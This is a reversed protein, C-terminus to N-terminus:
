SDKRAKDNYFRLKKCNDWNFEEQKIKKPFILKYIWTNNEYAYTFKCPNQKDMTILYFVYYILSFMPLPLLNWTEDIHLKSCFTCNETDEFFKVILINEEFSINIRSVPFRCVKCINLVYMGLENLSKIRCIEQIVEVEILYNYLHKGMDRMLSVVVPGVFDKLTRWGALIYAYLGSIIINM